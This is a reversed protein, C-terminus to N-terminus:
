RKIANNEMKTLLKNFNIWLLYISYGLNYGCTVNFLENKLVVGYSKAFEREREAFHQCLQDHVHGVVLRKFVSKNEIYKLFQDFANLNELLVDERLTANAEMRYYGYVLNTLCVGYGNCSLLYDFAVDAIPYLETDFGGINFVAKRKLLTGCTPAGVIFETCYEFNRKHICKIKVSDTYNSKPPEDSFSIHKGKILAVNCMRIRMSEFTKEVEYLYYPSLLDDDHLLAIWETTSLEICRNWNGFLGINQSNKYYLCNEVNSAKLIEEAEKPSTDPNNDVVIIRAKLNNKLQNGASKLAQILLDKRKYTPICIDLDFQKDTIIKTLLISEINRYKAFNDRIIGFEYRKEAM